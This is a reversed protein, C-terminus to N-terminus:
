SLFIFCSTHSNEDEERKKERKGENRINRQFFFAERIQTSTLFQAAPSKYGLVNHWFEIANSVTQLLVFHRLSVLKHDIRYGLIRKLGQKKMKLKTLFDSLTVFQQFCRHKGQVLDCTILDGNFVHLLNASVYKQISIVCFTM